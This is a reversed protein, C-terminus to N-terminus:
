PRNFYVASNLVNGRDGAVNRLNPVSISLSPPFSLIGVAFLQKAATRQLWDIADALEQESAAARAQEWHRWCEQMLSPPETGRAGRSDMWQMWAYANMSSPRFAELRAPWEFPYGNLEELVFMEWRGERLTDYFGKSGVMRLNARLGVKHLEEAIIESVLSWKPNTITQLNFILQEGDAGLRFGDRDRATLGVEDLLRNAEKLDRDLYATALKEQYWPHDPESIGIQKPHTLGNDVVESIIRRSMQLSMAIRFRRDNLLEAKFLDPALFNFTLTYANIDGPPPVLAYGIKGEAANRRVLQASEHGVRCLSVLGSVRRLKMREANGVLNWRVEDVYPLQRGESDLIWYYPNREYRVPSSPVGDKVIWPCLTPLDPNSNQGQDHKAEWLQAWTDMGASEIRKKLSDADTYDPHFQQLYHKPTCTSNRENRGIQALFTMNPDAFVFRVTYDDLAYVDARRGNVVILDPTVPNLKPNLVYSEIWFLVDESTYPHGDSWKMGKRLHFTWVRKDESIDYGKWVLPLVDNTRTQFFPM